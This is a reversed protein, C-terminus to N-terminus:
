CVEHVEPVLELMQRHPNPYSGRWGVTIVTPVGQFWRSGGPIQVGVKLVSVKFFFRRGAQLWVWFVKKEVPKCFKVVEPDGESVDRSDDSFCM